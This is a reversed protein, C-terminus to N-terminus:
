KVLEHKTGKKFLLLMMKDFSSQLKKQGTEVLFNSLVGTLVVAHNVSM